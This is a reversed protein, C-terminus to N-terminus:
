NEDPAREVRNIILYDMPLKQPTLRLGLQDQLATFISGYDPHPSDTPIDPRTFILHFDYAGALGTKDVVPKKLEHEIAGTLMTVPVNQFRFEFGSSMGLFPAGSNAKMKSGGKAVVLAYGAVIRHESHIALHLRQKLLNRLMPRMQEKTLRADGEVKASLDYHQSDIWSPGELINQYPVAWAQSILSKLMIHFEIMRNSPYKQNQNPADPRNYDVTSHPDEVRLTAAEFTQASNSVAGVMAILAIAFVTRPM